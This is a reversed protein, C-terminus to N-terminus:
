NSMNTDKGRKIEREIDEKRKININLADIRIYIYIPSVPVLLQFHRVRVAIIVLFSIFLALQNIVVEHVVDGGRGVGVLSLSLTRISFNLNPKTSSVGISNMASLSSSLLLLVDSVISVLILLLFFFFFFSVHYVNM